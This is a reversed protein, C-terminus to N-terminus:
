RKHKLCEKNCFKSVHKDVLQLIPVVTEKNLSYVRKKGQRQVELFNCEMLKRLSHSIKSQEEKVEDCIENVSKDGKMLSEIIKMRTSNAITEFFSYYSFCKM